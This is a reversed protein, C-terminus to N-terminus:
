GVPPTQGGGGAPTPEAPTVVAPRDTCTSWYPALSLVMRRCTCNDIETVNGRDDISVKALVVWPDTPCPPCDPIEAPATLGSRDAPSEHSPPCRDLVCIEYGDRWRSYECNTDDCGCGVPQVRVPRSPIEKYRVAIYLPKGGRRPELTSEPCLPDVIESCADGSAESFCRRRVDFCIEHDILIEDGYPGLIYGKDVIVKWAKSSADVRAGCVVGWGHLYRNHRRMKNRFYEQGLTLDDPTVLQRPFFRPREIVGKGMAPASVGTTSSGCGCDTETTTAMTSM